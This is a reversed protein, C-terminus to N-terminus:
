FDEKRPTAEGYDSGSFSPRGGVDAKDENHTPKLRTDVLVSVGELASANDDVQLEGDSQQRLIKGEKVKLYFWEEPKVKWGPFEAERSM